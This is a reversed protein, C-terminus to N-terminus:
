LTTSFTGSKPVANFARHRGRRHQLAVTRRLYHARSRPTRNVRNLNADVNITDIVLRSRSSSRRSRFRPILQDGIFMGGYMGIIDSINVVPQAGEL